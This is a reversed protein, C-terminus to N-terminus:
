KDTLALVIEECLKTSEKNLSQIASLLRLEVEDLQEQPRKLRKLVDLEKELGSILREWRATSPTPERDKQLTVIHSVTASPTSSLIHSTSVDVPSSKKKSVLHDYDEIAGAHKLEFDRKRSARCEIKSFDEESLKNGCLTISCNKGAPKGLHLFTLWDTPYWEVCFPRIEEKEKLTLVKKRSAQKRSAAVDRKSTELPWVAKRIALFVDGSTYGSPYEGEGKYLRNLHMNIYSKSTIAVKHIQSGLFARKQDAVSRGQVRKNTKLWSESPAKSRINDVFVIFDPPWDHGPVMSFIDKFTYEKKAYNSLVDELTKAAMIWLADKSQKSEETSISSWVLSCALHWFNKILLNKVSAPGNEAANLLAQVQNVDDSGKELQLDLCFEIGGDDEPEEGDDEPEGGDDDEIDHADTFDPFPALPTSNSAPTSTNNASKRM